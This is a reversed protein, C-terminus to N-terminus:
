ARDECANWYEQIQKQMCADMPDGELYQKFWIVTEKVAKSVDWVPHWGFIAKARSCDLTLLRSEHPEECPRHRWSIGNGWEQCFIDALERTSICDANDPGINYHGACEKNEYQRQAVLLYANLAELVHQYPRVADPNRLEIVQGAAAARICDPLIRNASFDGGGIVNGARVTSASVAKQGFYSRMYSGTVLESCSKSNAYPDYGDLGDTERYGWEWEMNRYVKDTTVNVFSKVANSQRVCECVNVTGMVNTEYTERPHRYSEQVLPQAALHFVIEPEAQEFTKHLCAYDRIDGIVSTIRNEIKSAEYLSPNTPPELAYGVVNAGVQALMACLWSGKFGTHGTVLM